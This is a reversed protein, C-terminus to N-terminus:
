PDTIDTSPGAESINMCVRLMITTVSITDRHLRVLVHLHLNHVSLIYPSDHRSIALM